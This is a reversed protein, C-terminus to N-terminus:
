KVTNNINNIDEENNKNKIKSGIGIFYGIDFARKWIHWNLVTEPIKSEKFKMLALERRTSM